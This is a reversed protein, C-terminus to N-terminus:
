GPTGARPTDKLTGHAVAEREGREDHERRGAASIRRRACRVLVRAARRGASGFCAVAAIAGAAAARVRTVPSAAGTSIRLATSARRAATTGRRGRTCRSTASPARAPATGAASACTAGRASTSVVIRAPLAVGVRGGRVQDVVIHSEVPPRVVIWGTVANG